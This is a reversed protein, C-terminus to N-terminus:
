QLLFVRGIAARRDVAAELFQLRDLARMQAAVHVNDTVILLRTRTKKPKISSSHISIRGKFSIPGGSIAVTDYLAIEQHGFIIARRQGIELRM